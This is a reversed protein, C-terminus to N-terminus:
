KKDKSFYYTGIATILATLTGLWIKALDFSFRLIDEDTKQIILIFLGLGVLAFVVAFLMGLRGRSRAHTPEYTPLGFTERTESRLSFDREYM